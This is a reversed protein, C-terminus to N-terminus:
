TITSELVSHLRNQYMVISCKIIFINIVNRYTRGIKMTYKPRSYPKLCQPNNYRNCKKTTM